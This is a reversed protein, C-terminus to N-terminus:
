QSDQWFNVIRGYNADRAHPTTRDVPRFDFQAHIVCNGTPKAPDEGVLGQSSVLLFNYPGVMYTWDLTVVYSGVVKGAFDTVPQRYSFVTQSADVRPPFTPDKQLKVRADEMGADALARAQAQTRAYVSANYRPSNSSLFGLGLVLVLGAILLVLILLFGRKKM